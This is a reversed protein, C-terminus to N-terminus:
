RGQAGRAQERRVLALGLVAFGLLVGGAIWGPRAFSRSPDHALALGLGTLVFSLVGFMRM